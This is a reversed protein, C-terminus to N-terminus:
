LLHIHNGINQCSFYTSQHGKYMTGQGEMEPLPCLSCCQNKLFGPSREREWVQPPRETRKKSWNRGRRTEKLQYFHSDHWALCLLPKSSISPWSCPCMLLFYFGEPLFRPYHHSRPWTSPLACVQKRHELLRWFLDKTSNPIACFPLHKPLHSSKRGAMWGTWSPGKCKLPPLAIM